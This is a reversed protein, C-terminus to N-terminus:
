LNGLLTKLSATAVMGVATILSSLILVYLGMMVIALLRQRIVRLLSRSTWSLLGVLLPLSLSFLVSIVVNSGFSSELAALALWGGWFMVAISGAPPVV